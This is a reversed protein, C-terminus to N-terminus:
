VHRLWNSLYAKRIIPLRNIYCLSDAGSEMEAALFWTGGVRHVKNAFVEDQLRRAYENAHPM